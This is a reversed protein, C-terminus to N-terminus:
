GTTITAIANTKVTSKVYASGEMMVKDHLKRKHYISVTPKKLIVALGTSRSERVIKLPFDKVRIGAM